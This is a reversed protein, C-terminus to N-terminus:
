GGEPVGVRGRTDRAVAVEGGHAASISVQGATAGSDALRARVLDAVREARAVLDDPVRGSALRARLEALAGADGVAEMADLWPADVKDSRILGALVAEDHHGWRALAAAAQAAIADDDHDLSARVVPERAPGRVIHQELVVSPHPHEGLFVDDDGLHGAEAGARLLARQVPVSASGLAGLWRARDVTRPALAKVLGEIAALEDPLKTADPLARSRRRFTGDHLTWGAAVLRALTAHQEGGLSWWPLPRRTAVVVGDGLPHAPRRDDPATAAIAGPLLEQEPVTLVWGMGDDLLDDDRDRAITLLGLTPHHCEAGIIPEAKLWGRRQRASLDRKTAFGQERLSSWSDRKPGSSDFVGSLAALLVVVGMIGFIVLEPPM